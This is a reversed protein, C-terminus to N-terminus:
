TRKVIIYHSVFDNITEMTMNNEANSNHSSTVNMMAHCRTIINNNCSGAASQITRGTERDFHREQVCILVHQACTDKLPELIIRAAYDDYGDDM